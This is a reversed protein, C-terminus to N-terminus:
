SGAETPTYSVNAKAGYGSNYVVSNDKYVYFCYRLTGSGGSAAATWTIKTGVVASTKDANLGTVTIPTSAASVTIVNSMRSTSKGAGDKVFVKVKYSGAEMPTYSVSSASGYGSNYVVTSDKYVYFCYKLSGAGGSASATWTITEGTAASTKNATIGSVALPIALFHIEADALSLNSEEISINAWQAETGGFYVDTLYDCGYIAFSGISTVSAPITLSTLGSCLFLVDGKIITVGDPIVLSKLSKDFEFLGLELTTVGAPLTVSQLNKCDAFAYEGIGTMGDPLTVGTLADCNTFSQYGIWTVGSPISVDSLNDCDYFAYNGINTVGPTIVVSTIADKFSQWPANDFNYGSMEGAGSVTLTGVNDLTWVVSDSGNRGCIGSATVTGSSYVIIANTLPDNDSDIEIRSWQAMDGGFRVEKLSSCGGFAYHIRTISAPLTIRKLSCCDHFTYDEISPIDGLIEAYALDCCSQFVGRGLSTVSAPITISELYGCDAFAYMGISTVTSPITVKVLNTNWKFAAQGIATVKYGGLWTPITVESATGNYRTITAFGGPEQTYEWDGSTMAKAPLATVPLMVIVLILCLFVSFLKKM